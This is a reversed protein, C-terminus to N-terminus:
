QQSYLFTVVIAYELQVNFTNDDKSGMGPGPVLHDRLLSKCGSCDILLDGTGLMSIAQEATINTTIREVGNSGRTDILNSLADEISNLPCFGMTWGRMLSMLDAPVSQRFSLSEELEAVDFVAEVNEGDIYDACYSEVSDAVLFSSLKVMRTRTYKPRKEYLRVSFKGMSQLLATLLLGVPGGGIIHVQGESRLKNTFGPDTISKM